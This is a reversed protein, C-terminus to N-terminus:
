RADFARSAMHWIQRPIGSAASLGWLLKLVGNEAGAEDPELEIVEVHQGSLRHVLEREGPTLLLRVPEEQSM